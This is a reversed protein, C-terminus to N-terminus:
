PGQVRRRAVRPARRRASSSAPTTKISGFPPPEPTRKFVSGRRYDGQKKFPVIEGGPDGNMVANISAGIADAARKKPDASVHAYRATMAASSHGLLGGLIALGTGANAGTSAFNHRLDHIRLGDLGAAKKVAAWPCHLDARPKGPLAGPIIYPNGDVRELGALIEAAAGLYITKPGTKSDPLFLTGKGLDVNEWRAKLIENLRAGTLLLIRIAAIAYPDADVTRLAGALRM